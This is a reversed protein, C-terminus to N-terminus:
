PTDSRGDRIWQLVDALGETVIETARRKAWALEESPLAQREVKVWGDRKIRVNAAYVSLTVSAIEYPGTGEVTVDERLYFPFVDGDIVVHRTDWDILVDHALKMM